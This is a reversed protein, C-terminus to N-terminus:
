LSKPNSVEVRHCSTEEKRLTWACRKLPIVRFDAASFAKRILFSLPVLLLSTLLAAWVGPALESYKPNSVYWRVNPWRRHVFEMLSLTVASALLTGKVAWFKWHINLIHLLHESSWTLFLLANVCVIVSLGM